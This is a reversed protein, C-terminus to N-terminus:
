EKESGSLESMEEDEDCWEEDDEVTEVESVKQVKHAPEGEEVPLSHGSDGTRKRKLDIREKMEKMAGNDKHRLYLAKMWWAAAKWKPNVYTLHLYELGLEKWITEYNEDTIADQAVGEADIGVSCAFKEIASASVTKAWDSIITVTTSNIRARILEIALKKEKRPLSYAQQPKKCKFRGALTIESESPFHTICYGLIGDLQMESLADAVDTDSWAPTISTSTPIEDQTENSSSSPPEVDEPARFLSYNIQKLAEDSPSPPPPPESTTIPSTEEETTVPAIEEEM